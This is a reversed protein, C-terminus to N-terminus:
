LGFKSYEAVKQRPDFLWVLVEGMRQHQEDQYLVRWSEIAMLYVSANITMSRDVGDGSSGALMSMMSWEMCSVMSGTNLSM